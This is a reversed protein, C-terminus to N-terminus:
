EATPALIVRAKPDLRLDPRNEVARLLFCPRHDGGDRKSPLRCMVIMGRDLGVIASSDGHDTGCRRNWLDVDDRGLLAQGHPKSPMSKSTPIISAIM